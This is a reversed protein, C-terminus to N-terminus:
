YEIGFWGREVKGHAILVQSVPLLIAPVHHNTLIYGRPDIIMGSGLSEDGTQIKQANSLM